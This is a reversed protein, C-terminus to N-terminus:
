VLKVTLVDDKRWVYLKVFGLMLRPDILNEDCAIMGQQGTAIRVLDVLDNVTFECPVEWAYDGLLSHVKVVLTSKLNLLVKQQDSIEKDTLMDIISLMWMAKSYEKTIFPKELLVISNRISQSDNKGNVVPAKFPRKLSAVCAIHFNCYCRGSPRLPKDSFMNCAPCKHLKADKHSTKPTSVGKCTQEHVQHLNNQSALIMEVFNPSSFASIGVPSFLAEDLSFELPAVSLPKKSMVVIEDTDECESPPASNVVDFCLFDEM